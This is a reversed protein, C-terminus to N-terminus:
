SVVSVSTLRGRKVVVHFTGAKADFTAWVTRAERYKCDTTDVRNNRVCKPLNRVKRLMTKRQAPHCDYWGLTYPYLAAEDCGGYPAQASAGSPAALVLLSTALTLSLTKV